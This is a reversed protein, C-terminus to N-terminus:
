ELPISGRFKQLLDNDALIVKAKDDAKSIRNPQDLIKCIVLLLDGMAEVLKRGRSPGSNPVRNCKGCVFKGTPPFSMRYCLNQHNDTVPVVVRAASSEFLGDLTGFSPFDGYIRNAGSFRM